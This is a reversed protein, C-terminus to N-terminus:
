VMTINTMGRKYRQYIMDGLYTLGSFNCEEDEGVLNLHNENMKKVFDKETDDLQENKSLKELIQYGKPNENLWIIATDM